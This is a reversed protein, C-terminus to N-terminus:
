IYGHKKLEEQIEKLEEPNLEDDDSENEKLKEDDLEFNSLINEMEKVIEPNESAVNNNEFPDEQLNYLNM